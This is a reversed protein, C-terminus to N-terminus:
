SKKLAQVFWLTLCYFLIALPFPDSVSFCHYTPKAVWVLIGAAEGSLNGGGGFYLVPGVFVYISNEFTDWILFPSSCVKIM